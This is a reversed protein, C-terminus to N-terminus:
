WRAKARKVLKRTLRRMSCDSPRRWTGPMAPWTTTTPRPETPMRTTSPRSASPRWTTTTSVRRRCGSGRGPGPGATHGHDDGVGGLALGVGGDVQGVGRGHGDEGAGVEGVDLGAQGHPLRESVPPVVDRHDQPHEVAVQGAHHLAVEAETWTREVDARAAGHNTPAARPRSTRSVNKTSWCGNRTPRSVMAAPPPRWPRAMCSRDARVRTTARRRATPRPRGELVRRAPAGPEESPVLGVQEAGVVLQEVHQPAVLPRGAGSPRLEVPAAPPPGPTRRRHRRGHHGGRCGARAPRRVRHAAGPVDGRAAPLPRRHLDARPDGRRGPADHLADFLGDPVRGGTTSSATPTPWSWASPTTTAPPRRGTRCPM